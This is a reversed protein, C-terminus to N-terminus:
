VLFVFTAYHPSSYSHIPNHILRSSDAWITTSVSCNFVVCFKLAADSSSIIIFINIKLNFQYFHNFNKKKNVTCCVNRIALIQPNVSITNLHKQNWTWRLKGSVTIWLTIKCYHNVIPARANVIADESLWFQSCWLTCVVSYSKCM